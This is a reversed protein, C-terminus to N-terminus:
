PAITESLGNFFLAPKGSIATFTPAETVEGVIKKGSTPTGAKAVGALSNAGVQADGTDVFLVDGLTVNTVGDASDVTAIGAEVYGVVLVDLEEGAEAAGLSICYQGWPRDDPDDVIYLRSAPDNVKGNTSNVYNDMMLLEGIGVAAGTRNLARYRIERPRRLGKNPISTGEFWFSM